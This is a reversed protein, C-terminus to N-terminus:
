AAVATRVRRLAKALFENSAHCDLHRIPFPFYLGDAIVSEGMWQRMSNVLVDHDIEPSGAFDAPQALPVLHRLDYIHAHADFHPPPIFDRLFRDFLQRDAASFHCRYADAFNLIPYASAPRAAPM